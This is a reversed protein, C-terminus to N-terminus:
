TKHKSVDWINHVHIQLSDLVWHKWNDTITGKDEALDMFDFLKYTNDLITIDIQM